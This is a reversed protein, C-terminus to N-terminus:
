KHYRSTYKNNRCVQHIYGPDYGLVRLDDPNTYATVFVNDKTYQEVPKFVLERWREVRTGYNSNYKGDCWELNEVCNNTKDEDRHNVQPLNNPNPIFANAVLRHVYCHNPKGEKTLTVKLYGQQHVGPKLIFPEGIHDRYQNKRWMCKVRGYNSIQYKGNYGEIDKWMENKMKM